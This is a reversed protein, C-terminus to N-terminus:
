PLDCKRLWLFFYKQGLDIYLRCYYCFALVTTVSAVIVVNSKFCYVMAGISNKVLSNFLYNIKKRRESVQVTRITFPFGFVSM